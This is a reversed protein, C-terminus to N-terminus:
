GEVYRYWEPRPESIKGEMLLEFIANEFDNESIQPFKSRLDEYTVGNGDKDLTQILNELHDKLKTPDSIIVETETLELTETSKLAELRFITERDAEQVSSVAEPQIFWRSDPDDTKSLRLIGVVEIMDGEEYSELLSDWSKLLVAGSGDELRLQVFNGTTGEIRATVIGLLRVRSIFRGDPLQLRSFIREEGTAEDTISEQILTGHLDSIRLRISTARSRRM